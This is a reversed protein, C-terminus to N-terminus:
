QLQGFYSARAVIAAANHSAIYPNSSLLSCSSFQPTPRCYQAYMSPRLYTHIHVSLENVGEETETDRREISVIEPSQDPQVTYATCPRCRITTDHMCNRAMHKQRRVQRDTGDSHSEANARVEDERVTTGFADWSNWGLPPVPALAPAATEAAAAQPVGRLVLLLLVAFRIKVFGKCIASVVATIREM